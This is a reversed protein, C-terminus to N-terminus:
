QNGRQQAMSEALDQLDDTFAGVSFALTMAPRLGEGPVPQYNRDLYLPERGHVHLYLVTNNIKGVLTQELEEDSLDRTRAMLCDVDPRTFGTVLATMLTLCFGDHADRGRLAASLDVLGQLTQRAQPDAFAQAQVAAELIPSM